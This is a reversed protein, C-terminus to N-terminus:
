HEPCVPAQRNIMAIVSSAMDGALSRFVRQQANVLEDIGAGAHEFLVRQCSWSKPGQGQDVSVWWNAVLEVHSGVTADLKQVQVGVQPISRPAGGVDQVDELGYDQRWADDLAGRIEDMLPAAWRDVSERVVTNGSARVVLQETDVEAPIRVVTLRAKFKSTSTEPNGIAPQLTHYRLGVSACGALLALVILLTPSRM